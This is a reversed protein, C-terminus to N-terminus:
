CTSLERTTPVTVSFPTGGARDGGHEGLTVRFALTGAEGWRKGVVDFPDGAGDDHVVARAAPPVPPLAVTARGGAPVFARAFSALRTTPAPVSVGAQALFLTIVVDSDVAGTNAVTVNVPIAACADAAAPADVRTVAFTTYSLGEGFTFVPPSGSIAADYFRYTLGPTGLTANAYPDMRGRDSPLAADSAYWTTALRGAPSFAGVLAGAVAAAGRM